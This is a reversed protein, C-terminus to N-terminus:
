PAEAHASCPSPSPLRLLHPVCQRSLALLTSTAHGTGPPTRCSRGRAVTHRRVVRGDRTVISASRSPGPRSPLELPTGEAARTAVGARVATSSSPAISADAGRKTFVRGRARVRARRALPRGASDGSRRGSSSFRGGSAPSRFFVGTFRSGVTLLEDGAIKSRFFAAISRHGRPIFRHGRAISRCDDAIFRDGDTIFELGCKKSRLFATPLEDCAASSRSGAAISEHGVIRLRPGDAMSRSFAATSESRRPTFRHRDAMSRYGDARSKM